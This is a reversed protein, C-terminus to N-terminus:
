AHVFHPPSYAMEFLATIFFFHLYVSNFLQVAGIITRHAKYNSKERSFYYCEFTSVSFASPRLAFSRASFFLFFFSFLSFLCIILSIKAKKKKKKKKLGRGQKTRLEGVAFRMPTNLNLDLRKYAFTWNFAPETVPHGVLSFSFLRSPNINIAM